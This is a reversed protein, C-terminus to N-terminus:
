LREELRCLRHASDDEVQLHAAARQSLDVLAQVCMVDLLMGLYQFAALSWTGVQALEVTRQVAARLAEKTVLPEQQRAGRGHLQAVSPRTLPLIQPPSDLALLDVKTAEDVVEVRLAVTSGAGAEEMAAEALNAEKASEEVKRKAGCLSTKWCSLHEEMM